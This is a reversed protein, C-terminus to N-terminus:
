FFSLLFPDLSLITGHAAITSGRELLSQFQEMETLMSLSFLTMTGHCNGLTPKTYGIYMLIQIVVNVRKWLTRNNLIDHKMLVRHLNSKYSRTTLNLYHILYVFLCFM